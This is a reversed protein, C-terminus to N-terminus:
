SYEEDEDGGVPNRDEFMLFEGGNEGDIERWQSKVDDLISEDFVLDLSKHQQYQLSWLVRPTPLDEVSLLLREVALPALEQPGSTSTYVVGITGFTNAFGDVL